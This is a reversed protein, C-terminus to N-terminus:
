PMDRPFPQKGPVIWPPFKWAEDGVDHSEQLSGCDGIVLAADGTKRPECLFCTGGCRVPCKSGFPSAPGGPKQADRCLLVHMFLYKTISLVASDLFSCMTGAHAAIQVRDVRSPM